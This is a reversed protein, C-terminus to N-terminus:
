ACPDDAAQSAVLENEELSKQTDDESVWSTADSRRSLDDDRSSENQFPPATELRILIGNLRYNIARQKESRSIAGHRALARLHAAVGNPSRIGFELAIERVTPLRQYEVLHRKMFHVIALQRATMNKTNM